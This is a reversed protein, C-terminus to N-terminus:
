NWPVWWNSKLSKDPKGSPGNNKILNNVEKRLRGNEEKNNTVL